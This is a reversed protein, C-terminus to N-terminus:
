GGGAWALAGAAVPLTYVPEDRTDGYVEIRDGIAVALWDGDPSWAFGRQEVQAMTVDSLRLDVISVEGAGARFGVALENGDPSFALFQGLRSSGTGYATPLRFSGELSGDQWLELFMVSGLAEFVLVSVAIQGTPAVAFAAVQVPAQSAREIGRILEETGLLTEGNRLIRADLPDAPITLVAGDPAFAPACGPLRRENEQGVGRVVTEGRATCWAVQTGDPAWVPQGLAQGLERDVEASGEGLRVLSLPRSNRPNLTSVTSAVVWAGAPSAWLECGTTPGADGVVLTELSLTRLRCNGPEALVIAGPLAGAAPVDPGRLRDDAQSAAARGDAAATPAAARGRLADVTAAGAILLVAGLVVVNWWRM